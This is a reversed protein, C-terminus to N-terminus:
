TSRTGGALRAANARLITRIVRESVEPRFIVVLNGTTNAPAAGLTHYSNSPAFQTLLVGACLLLGAQAALAWGFAPAWPKADDGDRKLWRRLTAGVGRKPREIELRRRMAAWSQEVDLPTEGIAQNLQRDFALEAKCEACADLHAAVDAHEAPDLRGMAYWPLLAQVDRHRDHLLSIIRGM